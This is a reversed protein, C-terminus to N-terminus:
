LVNPLRIQIALSGAVSSGTAEGSWIVPVFNLIFYLGIVFLIITILLALGNRFLWIVPYILAGTGPFVTGLRHCHGTCRAAGTGSQHMGSWISKCASANTVFAFLKYQCSLVWRWGCRLVAGNDYYRYTDLGPLNTWESRPWPLTRDCNSAKRKLLGHHHINEVDNSYHVFLFNGHHWWNDTQRATNMHLSTQCPYQEWVLLVWYKM